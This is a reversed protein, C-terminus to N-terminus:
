TSTFSFHPLRQQTQLSDHYPCCCISFLCTHHSKISEADGKNSFTLQVKRDLHDLQVNLLTCWYVDLGGVHYCLLHSVPTPCTQPLHAALIWRQVYSRCEIAQISYEYLPSMWITVDAPLVGDCFDCHSLYLQIIKLFPNLILREPMFAISFKFDLLMFCIVIWHEMHGAEAYRFSQLYREDFYGIDFIRIPQSRWQSRTQVDFKVALLHTSVFNMRM